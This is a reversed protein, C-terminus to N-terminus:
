LIGIIALVRDDNASSSTDWIMDFEYEYEYEYKYTFKMHKTQVYM